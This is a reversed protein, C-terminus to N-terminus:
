EGYALQLRARQFPWSRLDAALADDFCQQAEAEDRAPLARARRLNLDIWVAPRAGATAEVRALLERGEAVRDAHVAAEAL